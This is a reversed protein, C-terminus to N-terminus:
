LIHTAHVTFFFFSFFRRLYIKVDKLPISFPMFSRINVIKLHNTRKPINWIRFEVSMERQVPSVRLDIFSHLAVRRLAASNKRTNAASRRCRVGISRARRRTFWHNGTPPRRVGPPEWTRRQPIRPTFVTVTNKGCSALRYNLPRCPSERWCRRRREGAAGPRCWCRRHTPRVWFRHFITGVGRRGVVAGESTRGCFERTRTHETSTDKVSKKNVRRGLVHYRVNWYSHTCFTYSTVRRRYETFTDSIEGAAIGRQGALVIRCRPYLTYTPTFEVRNPSQSPFDSQDHVSSLLITCTGRNLIDRAPCWYSSYHVSM